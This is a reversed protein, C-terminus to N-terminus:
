RTMDEIKWQGDERVLVLTGLGGLALTAREGQQQLDPASLAAQTAAILGEVFGKEEGLWAARLAEETTGELQARPVLRLLVDFRQAQWARVLTRAADLATAQCYYDVASPGLKWQGQEWLLEAADGDPTVVFASVRPQGAPGEAVARELGRVADPRAKLEAVFQEYPLKAKVEDGLLAYAQEYRGARVAEVYAQAAERPSTPAGAGSGGAGSCASVGTLVLGLLFGRALRTVTIM